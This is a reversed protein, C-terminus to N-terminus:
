WNAALDLAAQWESTLLLSDVAPELFALDLDQQNIVGAIDRLHKDQGAERFFELKHLIVYEPPALSVEGDPTALRRRHDLAWQLCPHNRSPYIDAKLGSAHHIINFHGRITRRCEIAIVEAPPLYFDSAPFLTSFLPLHAPAPFVALDIDLTNRPEGFIATAVSGSIMYPIGAREIPMVFTGILDHDQM